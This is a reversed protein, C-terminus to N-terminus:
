SNRNFPIETFNNISTILISLLKKINKINEVTSINSTPNAITKFSLFCATLLHAALTLFKHIARCSYYYYYTLLQFIKLMAVKFPYSLSTVLDSLFYHPDLIFQLNDIYCQKKLTVSMLLITQATIDNNEVITNPLPVIVM